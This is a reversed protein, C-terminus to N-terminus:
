DLKRRFDVLADLFEDSRTPSNDIEKQEEFDMVEATNDELNKLM